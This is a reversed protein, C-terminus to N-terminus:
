RWGEADTGVADYLQKLIERDYVRLAAKREAGTYIATSRESRHALLHKIIERQEPHRDLFLKAVIRRMLHPNIRLGLDNWAIRGLQERLSAIHKPGAEGPFLFANVGRVLRPRFHDIYLRVQRAVVTPIEFELDEGNKVVDDPVSILLPGPRDGNPWSLHEELHLGAFNSLRMPAFLWLGIVIAGQVKLAEAVSGNENRLVAEITRTPYALLRRFAAADDFQKMRERAAKSPGKRVHRSLQTYAAIVAKQKKAPLRGGYKAYKRLTYAIQLIYHSPKGGRHEVLWRLATKYAEPEVLVAPSTIAEIAHGTHVLAAALCRFHDKQTAITRPKLPYDAGEAFLDDTGTSSLFTDVAAEFAPPFATWPFAWIERYCPVTLRVPPWVPLADQM